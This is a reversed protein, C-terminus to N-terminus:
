SKLRKKIEVVIKSLPIIEQLGSQMDRLIVTEDIVEKQGFILAYQVQLRDANKLQARLNDRGLSSAITINNKRFDELIKFSKKKAMEGLQVLYAKPKSCQSPRGGREKLINIIREVGLAVGVAPKKPGGLLHILDDYRGGGGLALSGDDNELWIEFVTRTYYDLGRVLNQNLNYPINLEDLYELLTEFHKKCDDCLRDVTPPLGVRLAKCEENKCDLLRLPNEKLRRKCESCLKKVKPRYYSKIANRYAPRCSSCGISNLEIHSNKIGLENLLMWTVQIIEADVIASEEGLTELGFQYFQRYRGAQPKDHRFISNFYFLKVPQPWNFMANETYARCIGPTSEPRLALHDGGRTRLIYMEKQVIDTAAGSGRIFIEADELIPTDIKGFGYFEAIEKFERYVKDWWPQMEPLVDHMGRPAQYVKKKSSKKSNKTM